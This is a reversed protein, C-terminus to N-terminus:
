RSMPLSASRTPNKLDSRRKEEDGSKELREYPEQV